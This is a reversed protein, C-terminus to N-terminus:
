HCGTTGDWKELGATCCCLQSTANRLCTSDKAQQFNAVAAIVKLDAAPKPDLRRKKAKPDNCLWIAGNLFDIDDQPLHAVGEEEDIRRAILAPCARATTLRIQRDIGELMAMSGIDM